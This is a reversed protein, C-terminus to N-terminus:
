KRTTVNSDRKMIDPWNSNFKEEYNINSQSLTEFFLRLYNKSSIELKGTNFKLKAFAKQMIIHNAVFILDDFTM